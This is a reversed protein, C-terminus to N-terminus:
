QLGGIRTWAWLTLSVFVASYAVSVGVTLLKNRGYKNLSYLTLIGYLAFVFVLVAFVITAVPWYLNEM